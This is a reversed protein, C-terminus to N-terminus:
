VPDYRNKFRSLGIKSSHCVLIQVSSPTVVLSTGLTEQVTPDAGLYILSLSFPTPIDRNHM